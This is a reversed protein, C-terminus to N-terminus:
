QAASIRWTLIKAGQPLDLSREVGTQVDVLTFTTNDILVARGDPSVAAPYGDTQISPIIEEVEGSRLDARWLGYTQMSPQGSYGAWPGHCLVFYLYQSDSSWKFGRAHSPQKPLDITMPSTDPEVLNYLTICGQETHQSWNKADIIAVWRGDTSMAASYSLGQPEIRTTTAGDELNITLIPGGGDGGIQAAYLADEKSTAGLLRVTGVLKTLIHAQGTQPNYLGVRTSHGLLNSDDDIGVTYAVSQRNRLVLLQGGWDSFEIEALTEVKGSTLDVVALQDEALLWLDDDMLAAAHVKEFPLKVVLRDSALGLGEWVSRRDLYLLSGYTQLDLIPTPAAISPEVTATPAAQRAPTPTMTPPKTTPSATVHLAPTPTM